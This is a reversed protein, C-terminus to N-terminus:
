EGKEQTTPIDLIDVLTDITIAQYKEMRNIVLRELIEIKTAQEVLFRYEWKPVHFYPETTHHGLENVYNSIYEDSYEGIDKKLGEM